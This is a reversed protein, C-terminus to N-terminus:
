EVIYLFCNIALIARKGKKQSKSRAQPETKSGDIGVRIGVAIRGSSSCLGVSARSKSGVKM